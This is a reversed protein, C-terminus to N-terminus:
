LRGVEGDRGFPGDEQVRVNGCRGVGVAGGSGPRSRICWVGRGRCEGSRRRRVWRYGRLGGEKTRPARWRRERTVTSVRGWDGTRVTFGELLVETDCRGWSRETTGTKRTEGVGERKPSMEGVRGRGRRRGADSGGLVGPFRVLSGSAQTRPSSLRPRPGSGRGHGGRDGCGRGWSTEVYRNDTRPLRLPPGPLLREQAVPDPRHFRESPVVRSLLSPKMPVYPNQFPSGQGTRAGLPYVLIQNRDADPTTEQRVM